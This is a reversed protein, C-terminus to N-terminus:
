VDTFKFLDAKDRLVYHLAVLFVFQHYDQLFKDLLILCIHWYYPISKVYLLGLYM